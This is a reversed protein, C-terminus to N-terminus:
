LVCFREWVVQNGQSHGKYWVSGRGVQNDRSKEQEETDFATDSTSTYVSGRLMQYRGSQLHVLQEVIRKEAFISM